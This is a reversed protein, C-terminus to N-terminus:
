RSSECRGSSSTAVGVLGIVRQNVGRVDLEIGGLAGSKEVLGLLHHQAVGGAIARPRSM